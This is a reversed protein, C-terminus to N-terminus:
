AAQRQVPQDEELPPSQRSLSLEWLRLWRNLQRDFRELRDALLTILGLFLMMQGLTILLWGTVAHDVSGALYSQIVLVSGYSLGAIGAYAVIQATTTLWSSHRRNTQCFDTTSHRKRRKPQSRSAQEPETPAPPRIPPFLSVGSSKASSPATATCTELKPPAEIRTEASWRALLDRASREAGTMPVVGLFPETASLGVECGCRACVVRRNDPKLEAAVDAECAPCWMAHHNWPTEFHM